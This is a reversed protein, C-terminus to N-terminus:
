HTSPRAPSQERLRSMVRETMRDCRQEGYTFARSTAEVVAKQLRNRLLARARHLRTKVSEETVDLCQATEAVSLEQIERLMFVSRYHVPLRDITAELLVKLEQSYASREPNDHSRVNPSIEEQLKRKRLRGLAEYVAIKTLWTSFEAEGAFQDLHAFARLYAEQMVDEAEQENKLIARAARYLRQNHRRVLLEFLATEGALVRTVVEKDPLTPVVEM